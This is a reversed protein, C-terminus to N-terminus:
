YQYYVMYKEVKEFFFDFTALNLYKKGCIEHLSLTFYYILIIYFHFAVIKEIM